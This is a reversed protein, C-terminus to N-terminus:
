EFNNQEIQLLSVCGVAAFLQQAQTSVFLKLAKDVLARDFPRDYSGRLLVFANRLSHNHQASLHFSQAGGALLASAGLGGRSRVSGPAFANGIFRRVALSRIRRLIGSGM